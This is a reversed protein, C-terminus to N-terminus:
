HKLRLMLPASLAFLGGTLAATVPSVSGDIARALRAGCWGMLAFCAALWLGITQFVEPLIPFLARMPVALWPIGDVFGLTTGAPYQLGPIAGLPFLRFPAQRHFLWGVYHYGWDSGPPIWSVDTPDVISGGGQLFFAILGLVAAAVPARWPRRNARTEPAEGIDKVVTLRSMRKCSAM